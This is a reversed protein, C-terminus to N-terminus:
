SEQREWKLFSGLLFLATPGIPLLIRLFSDDVNMVWRVDLPHIIYIFIYLTVPLLVALFLLLIPPKLLRRWYLLGFCFLAPWLLNWRICDTMKLALTKFILSFRAKQTGIVQWQLQPLFESLIRHEKLFLWWPLLLLLPISLLPIERLFQKKEGKPLLWLRATGFLFANILFLVQGENKTWAEGTSFLLAIWLDERAGRRAWFYFSLTAGTHYFAMPLEAYARLTYDLLLPLTALHATLIFSETRSKERRTGGWFVALLAGYFLPFLLRVKEEDLAGIGLYVWSEALPLLLPYDKHAFANVPNTFFSLDVSEALFFAKAKLGWISWADWFDYYSLPFTLAEIWLYIFIFLLFLLISREVSNFPERKSTPARGKRRRLFSSLFLIGWPLSLIWPNWSIGLLSAYFLQITWIVWGIGFAFAISEAKSFLPPRKMWLRFFTAGTLFVPLLSFGFRLM